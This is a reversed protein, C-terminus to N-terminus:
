AAWRLRLAEFAADHETVIHLAVRGLSAADVTSPLVATAGGNIADTVWTPTADAARVILTAAPAATRAERIVAIPLPASTPEQIVTLDPLLEALRGAVGRGIGLRAVVEIYPDAALARAAADTALGMDGILVARTM